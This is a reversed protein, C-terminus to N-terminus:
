TLGCDVTVLAIGVLWLLTIGVLQNSAIEWVGVVTRVCLTSVTYCDQPTKRHYYERWKYCYELSILLLLFMASRLLFFTTTPWPVVGCSNIVRTSPIHLSFFFPLTNGRTMSGWVSSSIPPPIVPNGQHQFYEVKRTYIKYVYLWASKTFVLLNTELTHNSWARSILYNNPMKWWFKSMHIDAM